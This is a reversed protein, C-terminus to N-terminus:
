CKLTIQKLFPLSLLIDFDRIRNLFHLFSISMHFEEVSHSLIDFSLDLIHYNFLIFPKFDDLFFLSGVKLSLTFM